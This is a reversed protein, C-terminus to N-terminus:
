YKVDVFGTSCACHCVMRILYFALISEAQSKGETRKGNGHQMNEVAEPKQLSAINDATLTRHINVERIWLSKIHGIYEDNYLKRNKMQNKMRIFGGLKKVVAWIIERIQRLRRWISSAMGDNKM